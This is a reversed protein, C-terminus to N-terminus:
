QGASATAPAEVGRNRLAELLEAALKEDIKIFEGLIKSRSRDAMSALYRIVKNRQKTRHQNLDSSQAPAPEDLIAMLIKTADAPKQAQLAGVAQQFQEDDSAQKWESQKQDFDKRAAELAATQKELEERRSQIQEKLQRAEEKLRLLQQDLLDQAQNHQDIKQESSVPTGSRRIAEATEKTKKTTEASLRSEEATQEAITPKLTERLTRLREINLRDSAALWGVFGAIALLNVVALFALVNWVRKM